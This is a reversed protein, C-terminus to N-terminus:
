NKMLDCIQELENTSLGVATVQHFVPEKEDTTEIIGIKVTEDKECVVKKLGAAGFYPIPLVKFTRDM